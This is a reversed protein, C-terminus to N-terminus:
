LVFFATLNYLYQSYCSLLCDPSWVPLLHLQYGAPRWSFSLSWFVDRSLKGRGFTVLAERSIVHKKFIVNKWLNLIQYLNIKPQIIFTEDNSKQNALQLYIFFYKCALMLLFPGLGSLCNKHAAHQMQSAACNIM